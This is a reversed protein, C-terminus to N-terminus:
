DVFLSSGTCNHFYKEGLTYLSAMGKEGTCHSVGIEAVQNDVLYQKTLALSENTAEVLHTGGLIAFLPRELREKATDLMNKVGPHSCGLLVVLGKPTDIAVLVEDDFPDPRFEGNELLVFRPNVVEDAHKREFGTIVHVGPLVESDGGSEARVTLRSIRHAELWPADFNNGLFDYVNNRKGYKPMFFGEGTVLTFDSHLAALSPLGGTHDYHGHSLVVSQLSTLDCQLQRANHLLADSEGADFLMTEGDREIFFALGHESRLGKHEGLSNEVLTTISLSM